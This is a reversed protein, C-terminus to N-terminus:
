PTTINFYRDVHTVVQSSNTGLLTTAEATVDVIHVGSTLTDTPVSVVIVGGDSTFLSNPGATADIVVKCFTCNTGTVTVVVPAGGDQAGADYSWTIPPLAVMPVTVDTLGADAQVFLLVASPIGADVSNQSQWGGGGIFPLPTPPDGSPELSVLTAFSQDVPTGAVYLYVIASYQGSATEAAPLSLSALGQVEYATPVGGGDVPSGGDSPNGSDNGSHSSSCGICLGLLGAVWGVRASM